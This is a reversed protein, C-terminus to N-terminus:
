PIKMFQTFDSWNEVRFARIDRVSQAFWPLTKLANLAAFMSSFDESNTMYVSGQLWFFGHQKMLKRIEYYAPNYPTGYSQELAAINMDFTIAFM